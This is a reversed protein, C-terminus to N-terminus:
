RRPERMCQGVGRGGYVTPKLDGILEHHAISQVVVFVESVQVHTLRPHPWIRNTILGMKAGGGVLMHTHNIFSTLLPVASSQHLLM